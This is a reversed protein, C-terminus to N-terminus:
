GIRRKAIRLAGLAGLGALILPLGAPLPIPPPTVSDIRTYFGAPLGGGGDGFVNLEYDGAGLVIEASGFSASTWGNDAESNDGFGMAFGTLSTTLLPTLGGARFVTFTDGTLFADTIRFFADESLSFVYPSADSATNTDSLTDEFWGGDLVPAAGASVAALSLAAATAGTKLASLLKM